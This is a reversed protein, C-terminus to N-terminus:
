AAFQRPRTAVVSPRLKIGHWWNKLNPLDALFTEGDPCNLLFDFLPIAHFDALSPLEGGVLYGDARVIAEFAPLGKRVVAAADEVVAEDTAEGRLPRFILQAALGMRIHHSLYSDLVGIIQTMRALRRPEAPQLAPGPFALDIYRCIAATEYLVFDDHELVPVKAFPHRSLHEAPLGGGPTFPVEQLRFDVGKELLTLWATRTYASYHPGYLVLESM